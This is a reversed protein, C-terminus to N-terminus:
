TVKGCKAVGVVRCPVSEWVGPFECVLHMSMHTGRDPKKMTESVKAQWGDVPM